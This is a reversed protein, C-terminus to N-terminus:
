DAAPTDQSFINLWSGESRKWISSVYMAESKNRTQRTFDARYSLVAHDSGLSIARFDSLEYSAVSPGDALQAVHDDKGAFGDPYVGLFTDHLSAADKASDGSVLADWVGTELKKLAALLSSQQNPDDTM